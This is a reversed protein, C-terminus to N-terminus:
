INRDLGSLCLGHLMHVPLTSALVPLQPTPLVQTLGPQLQLPLKACGSGGLPEMSVSCWVPSVLAKNCGKWSYWHSSMSLM